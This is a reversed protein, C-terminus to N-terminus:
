RRRGPRDAEGARDRSGTGGGAGAAAVRQGHGANDRARRYATQRHRPRHVVRQHHDRHCRDASHRPLGVAFLSSNPALLGVVAGVSIGRAALAGATSNVREILERYTTRAGGVADVLAIRDLDTRGIDRFLMDFVSVEPIDVDPFPSAFGM